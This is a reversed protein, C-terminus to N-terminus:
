DDPGARDLHKVGDTDEGTKALSQKQGGEEDILVEYSRPQPLAQGAQEAALTQNGAAHHCMIRYDWSKPPAPLPSLRELDDEAM